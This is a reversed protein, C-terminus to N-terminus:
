ICRTQSAIDKGNRWIREFCHLCATYQGIHYYPLMLPCVTTELWMGTHHSQNRPQTGSLTEFFKQFNINSRTFHMIPLVSNLIMTKVLTSFDPVTNFCIWFNSFSIKFFVSCYNHELVKLYTQPPILKTVKSDFPNALFHQQSIAFSVTFSM